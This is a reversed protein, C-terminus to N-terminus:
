SRSGNGNTLHLKFFLKMSEMTIETNCAAEPPLNGRASKWPSETHTLARLSFPSYVKYENWVSSIFDRDQQSLEREPPGIEQATIPRDGFGALKPYLSKVVPGHAWAQISEVFMPRDRIALSWGQVYYLLKQLQLHSVFQPEDEIAALGVIWRAVDAANALGWSKEIARSRSQNREAANPLAHSLAIAIEKYNDRPM